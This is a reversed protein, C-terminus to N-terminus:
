RIMLCFSKLALRYRHNRPIGQYIVKSRIARDKMNKAIVEQTVRLKSALAAAYSQANSASEFEELLALDIGVTMQRGFLEQFPSIGLPVSVTARFAFLVPAINQAWNEQNDCVVKLSSMLTKNAREVKANGAAHTM